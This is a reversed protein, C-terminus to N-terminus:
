KCRTSLDIGQHLAINFLLLQENFDIEFGFCVDPYDALSPAKDLDLNERNTNGLLTRVIRFYKREAMFNPVKNKGKAELYLKKESDTAPPQLQSM